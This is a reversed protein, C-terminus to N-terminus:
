DWEGSPLTGARGFFPALDRWTEQSPVKHQSEWRKDLRDEAISRSVAAYGDAKTQDNHLHAAHMVRPEFERTSANLLETPCYPSSLM